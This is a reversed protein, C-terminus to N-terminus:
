HEGKLYDIMKSYSVDEVSGQEHLAKIAGTIGDIPIVLNNISPLKESMEALQKPLEDIFVTGNKVVGPITPGIYMRQMM